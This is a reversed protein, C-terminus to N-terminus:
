ALNILKAHAKEQKFELTYEGLIQGQIYDGKKGLYEHSFSRSGLPRISMRNLDLILIENSRLNDNLIIPFEGFESLFTDVVRGEVSDRVGHRVQDYGLKAIARKQKAPTMIVHRSATKFGGARYIKQLADNLSDGTVAGGSIDEVNSQIYNRAGKMYRKLGKVVGPGSVLAKELQLALESQKHIRLRDYEDTVGYQAVEIASGSIDITEDLIQTYNEKMVRQKARAERADAGEEAESYLIEVVDGADHGTATSDLYGRTVTITNGSVNTVLMYEDQIQIVHDKRFISGDAVAVSTAADDAVNETLKSEYAFMEDEVWEHKTNTVPQGFGILSLIPIQHPNLTLFEDVVSEKKGVILNTQQQAM